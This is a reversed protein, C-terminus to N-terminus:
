QTCRIIGSVKRFLGDSRQTCQLSIESFKPSHPRCYVSAQVNWNDKLRDCHNELPGAEELEHIKEPPVPPKSMTTSPAPATPSSPKPPTSEAIPAAPVSANYICIEASLTVSVPRSWTKFTLTAKTGDSSVAASSPINSFGCLHGGTCASKGNRFFAGMDKFKKDMDLVLTQLPVRNAHDRCSSNCHYDPTTVSNAATTICEVGAFTTSSLLVLGVSILNTTFSHM